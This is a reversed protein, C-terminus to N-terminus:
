ATRGQPASAERERYFVILDMSKPPPAGTQRLMTTLQGRHYSAHNVMHQLMQWFVSSGPQGNFMKYEIRRDIGAPGLEQLFARVEREMDRWASRLSSVDPFKDALLLATPSKGTWRMYWAWEAAYTHVATDRISQFSNGLDRTYHESSLPALADFLRDRAWYHYDLLASADDYNM